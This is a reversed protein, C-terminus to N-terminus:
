PNIFIQSVYERQNERNMRRSMQDCSAAPLRKVLTRTSNASQRNLQFQCLPVQALPIARDSEFVQADMNGFIKECGKHSFVIENALDVISLVQKSYKGLLYYKWITRRVNFEFSFVKSDFLSGSGEKPDISLICLPRILRERPTLLPAIQRSDLLKLDADSVFRERSLRYEGSAQLLASGSCFFLIKQPSVPLQTFNEFEPNRSFVKFDFSLSEFPDAAYLGLVERSTENFFLSIGSTERKLILRANNIIKQCAPSPFFDLEWAVPNSYYGHRIVIKFLRKYASM